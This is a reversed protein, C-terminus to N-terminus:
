DTTAATCVWILIMMMVGIASNVVAKLTQRREGRANFPLGSSEPMVRQQDPYDRPKPITKKKGTKNDKCIIKTPDSPHPRCHKYPNNTGRRTASGDGGNGKEASGFLDIYYLSNQSVYGYLHNLSGTSEDAHLIGSNISVLM